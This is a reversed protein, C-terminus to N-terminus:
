QIQRQLLCFFPMYFINMMKYTHLKKRATIFVANVLDIFSKRMHLTWAPCPGDVLPHIPPPNISPYILSRRFSTLTLLTPMPIDEKPNNVFHYTKLCFLHRILLVIFVKKFQVSSFSTFLCPLSFSLLCFVRLLPFIHFVGKALCQLYFSRSSLTMVITSERSFRKM